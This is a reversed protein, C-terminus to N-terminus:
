VHLDKNLKNPKDNWLLEVQGTVSNRRFLMDDKGSLTSAKLIFDETLGNFRSSIVRVKTKATIYLGAEVTCRDGLSIGTGANAGILCNEGISIKIDGGGSLTGMTSSGGGLDSDKGVSVGASIRGEVMCAGLTGANFNVFGAPMVTTGPSLYAGLRVTAPNVIRVGDPTPAGWYMPPFKDISIPQVCKGKMFEKKWQVETMAGDATYYLKNLLGFAGDLNLENPKFQLLSIMTLRCLVDAASIPAETTLSEKTPYVIAVLKKTSQPKLAPFEDRSITEELGLKLIDINTHGAESEYPGFYDEILEKANKGLDILTVKKPARNMQVNLMAALFGTNGPGVININLWRVAILKGNEDYFGIGLAYAYSLTYKKWFNEVFKQFGSTQTIKKM